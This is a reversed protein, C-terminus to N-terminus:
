SGSPVGELWSWEIQVRGLATDALSAFVAETTDLDRAACGVCRDVVKLDVSVDGGVLRARVMKACLPDTNPNSSTSVADYLLHSVACIKDGPGSTVGCAGLVPAQNDLIYYTLDGTYPGGNASPLPLNQTTHRTSLGAALGIILALVAVVIVALIILTRRSLARLRRTFGASRTRWRKEPDPPPPISGRKPLGHPHVNVPGDPSADYHYYHPSHPMQAHSVKAATAADRSAEQAANGCSETAIKAALAAM